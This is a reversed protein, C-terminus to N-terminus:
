NNKLIYYRTCRAKYQKNNFQANYNSESSKKYREPMLDLRNCITKIAKINNGIALLYATKAGKEECKFIWNIYPNINMGGRKFIVHPRGVLILSVRIHEGIFDPNIDVQHEKNALEELSKFFRKPEKLNEEKSLAPYFNMGYDKLEQLLIRTFVGQESLKQLIRLSTELNENDKLEPGLCKDIFYNMLIKKNTIIMNKVYQLDISRMLQNDVYRRANPILSKETSILAAKIFNEDQNKKNKMIIVLKKDKHKIIEHRISTPRVFKIETKYPVLDECEKNMEKRFSNLKFQIDKSIHAKEMRISYSSFLKYFLSAIKEVKEPYICIFLILALLLVWPSGTVIINILDTLDSIKKM